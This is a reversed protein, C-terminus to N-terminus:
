NDMKDESFTAEAFRLSFHEMLAKIFFQKQCCRLFVVKELFYCFRKVTFLIICFLRTFDVNPLITKKACFRKPFVSAAVVFYESIMSPHFRSESRALLNLM